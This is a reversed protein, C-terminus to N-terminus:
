LLIIGQSLTVSYTVKVKNIDANVKYLRLSYAVVIKLSMVAYNLGAFCLYILFLRNM